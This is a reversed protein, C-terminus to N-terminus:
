TRQFHIHTINLKYALSHIEPMEYVDSLNLYKGSFATIVMTNKNVLFDPLNRLFALQNILGFAMRWETSLDPDIDSESCSLAGM